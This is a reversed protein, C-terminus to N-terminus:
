LKILTKTNRVGNILMELQYMGSKLDQGFEVDNINSSKWTKIVVGQSNILRFNILSANSRIASQLKFSGRTPNPYVVVDNNKEIDAETNNGRTLMRVTVCGTTNLRLSRKSSLCGNNAQVQITDNASTANFKVRIKLGNLGSDIVANVPVTWKYNIVGSVSSATYTAGTTTGVIPCISTLGTLTTPTNPTRTSVTAIVRTRSSSVCNTTINKALAYYSTTTTITRTISSSAAQLLNGGTSASYWDITQNTGPTASVTISGSGCRANAIGVPASPAANITAAVLTRTKSVCGTSTIRSQVYYNTSASLSATTYSTATSLSSGGTAVNYWAVTGGAPATTTLVVTGTGCRSAGNAAPAAPSANVTVTVKRGAASRCGTVINKQFAWYSTTASLVPTNYRNIGTVTASQLLVTGLSDAYWVVANDTTATASISATDTGCKVSNVSTTIAAPGAGVTATVATRTLSTCTGNNAEAYYTTTASISPTTYTNSGQALLTGGTSASYWNITNGTSSAAITVVGSGCVSGGTGVPASPTSLVNASVSTRNSSVCGLSIDRAQAYYLTTTSISPTTFTSGTFM